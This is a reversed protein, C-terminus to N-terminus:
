EVQKYKYYYYSFLANYFLSMILNLTFIPHLTTENNLFFIIFGFILNTIFWLIYQHKRLIMFGYINSPQGSKKIKFGLILFFLSSFMLYISLVQNFHYIKLELTQFLVYIVSAFVIFYASWWFGKKNVSVMRDKLIKPIQWGGDFYYDTFSMSKTWQKTIKSLSEEFTFGQIMLDDIECAWHDTLEAIMDDPLGLKVLGKRIYLLQAETM